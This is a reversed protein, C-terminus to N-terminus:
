ADIAEFHDYLQVDKGRHRPRRLRHPQRAGLWMLGIVTMIVNDDKDPVFRSAAARQLGALLRCWVEGVVVLDLREPSVCRGTLRHADFLVEDEFTM